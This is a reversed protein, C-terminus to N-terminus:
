CISLRPGGRIGPRGVSHVSVREYGHERVAGIALEVLRDNNTVHLM